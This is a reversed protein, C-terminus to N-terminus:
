LFRLAFPGAIDHPPMNEYLTTRIATESKYADNREQTGDGLNFCDCHSQSVQVSVINFGVQPYRSSSELPAVLLGEDLAKLHAGQYTELTLM